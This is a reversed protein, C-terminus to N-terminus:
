KFTTNPLRKQFRDILIYQNDIHSTEIYSVYKAVNYNNTLRTIEDKCPFPHIWVSRQLQFFGLERLKATLVNRGTKSHEPIDYFIIRWQQDWVNPSTIFISESINKTLRRKGKDTVKLGFEYDGALLGISKMYSLVRRAERERDRKDLHQLYEDLPREIATMLGSLAIGAALATVSVSYRLIEDVIKSTTDNKAM